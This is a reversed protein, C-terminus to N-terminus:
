HVLKCPKTPYSLINSYILVVRILADEDYYISVNLFLITFGILLSTIFFFNEHFQQERRRHIILLKKTRTATQPEIM